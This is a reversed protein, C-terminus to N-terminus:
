LWSWAGASPVGGQIYYKTADDAGDPDGVFKRVTIRAAATQDIRIELINGRNDRIRIAGLAEASGSPLFRVLAAKLSGAAETPFGTFGSGAGGPGAFSLGLPLTFSGPIKNGDRDFRTEGGVPPDYATNNNSDTFAFIEGTVGETTGAQLAKVVVTKGSKIATARALRLTSSIQNAATLTKSRALFNLLSPFGIFAIVGMIILVMMLEIFTFGNQRRRQKRM